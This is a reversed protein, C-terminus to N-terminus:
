KEDNANQSSFSNKDFEQINGGQSDNGSRVDQTM